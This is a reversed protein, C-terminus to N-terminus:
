SAVRKLAISSLRSVERAASSSDTRACRWSTASADCSNRVGTVLRRVFMSTSRAPAWSSSSSRRRSSSSTTSCLSSSLASTPSRISRARPSMGGPEVSSTRRSRIASSDTARERRLAGWTLSWAWRSGTITSPTGSRRSRAILLRSSLAARCEGCSPTSRPRPRDRPRSTHSVVAGPDVFLVQRVHEVTEEAARVRAPLLAAPQAECDHTLDSLLM